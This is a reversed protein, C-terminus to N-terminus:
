CLPSMKPVGQIMACINQLRKANISSIILVIHSIINEGGGGGGVVVVVVVVVEVVEVM